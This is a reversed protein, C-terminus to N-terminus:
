LHPHAPNFHLGHHLQGCQYPKNFDTYIGKWYTFACVRSLSAFSHLTRVSSHYMRRKIWGKLPSKHYHNLLRCSIWNNWSQMKHVSDSNISWTFHMILDIVSEDKKGRHLWCCNLRHWDSSFLCTFCLLLTIWSFTGKLSVLSYRAGRWTSLSSRSCLLCRYSFKQTQWHCWLLRRGLLLYHLAAGHQLKARLSAPPKFM